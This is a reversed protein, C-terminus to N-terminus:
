AIASVGAIGSAACGKLRRASAPGIGGLAIVPIRARRCLQAFRVVGLAAAGPHSQTPFLPSLLAADAGFEAARQLSRAGHAAASIILGPKAARLARAKHALREPFHAGDARLRLAMRADGALLFLIGRRRCILRLQKAMAEREPHDYHRFIFGAGRPLRLLATRPDGLRATDSLLWLAPLAAGRGSRHAACKLQAALKAIANESRISASRM